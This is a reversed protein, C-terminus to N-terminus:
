GLTVGKVSCGSVPVPRKVAVANGILRVLERSTVFFIVGVEVRVRIGVKVGVKVMIGDKVGVGVAM